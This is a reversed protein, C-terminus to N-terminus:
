ARSAAVRAATALPDWVPSFPPAYSLDAVLLDEATMRATIAVALTDIRKGAGDGGVIQGGLLRGTGVEVVLKVTLPASGPFYGARTTSEITATVARFGDRAAETETLGTRAVETACIKTIATGVVGPFTAYGGGINIGAVRGQRNAVTGLAVHVPRQSVLHFSEACDGAAWVGEVDTQQRRDVKVSGRAGLTIGAAEALESNPRVGLGLVVLDAAIPGADTHVTGPEFATVQVGTRVTVSHRDLAAEVLAAMDPDLTRMVHANSDVLTVDAGWMVFAEALELGIYGGGVVVVRQCHSKEAFALLDAGDELTQVGRVQEGDAGPLDPLSPRAGTGILLHDFGIRFVRDHGRDHVEVQRRDLDIGKVEHGIRVDIRNTDRLERPTRAVLADVDAVDGSVLYPIGCASYSTRSGREFAVIELDSRMRRANTAATMGGADGGIVVLREAM